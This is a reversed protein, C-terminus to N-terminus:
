GNGDAGGEEFTVKPASDTVTTSKQIANKAAVNGTDKLFAQLAKKPKYDHVESFIKFFAEDGLIERASELTAADFRISQTFRVKAVLATPIGLTVTNLKGRREQAIQILLAKYQNFTDAAQDLREKAAYAEAVARAITLDSAPLTFAKGDVCIRSMANEKKSRQV